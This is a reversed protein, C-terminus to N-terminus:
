SCLTTDLTTSGSHNLESGSGPGSGAKWKMGSGSGAGSGMRFCPWTPLQFIAPACLLRQNCHVRNMMTSSSCSSETFIYIILSSLVVKFYTNAFNLCNHLLLVIVFVTKFSTREKLEEQRKKM